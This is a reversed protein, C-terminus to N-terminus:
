GSRTGVATASTATRHATTTATTGHAAASTSSPLLRGKLLLIYFLPFTNLRYSPFFPFTHKCFSTKRGASVAKGAFIKGARSRM